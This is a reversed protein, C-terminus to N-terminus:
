ASEIISCCSCIRGPQGAQGPTPGPDWIYGPYQAITDDPEAIACGAACIVGQSALEASFVSTAQAPGGIM